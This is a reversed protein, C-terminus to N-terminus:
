DQKIQNLIWVKTVAIDKIGAGCYECVKDEGVIKVPAGCNPCKLGLARKGIGFADEDIVYIFYVKLRDQIKKRKGKKTEWYEFSSQMTIKAEITNREYMNIVTNHFKLNEYQVEQNKEIKDEIYKNIYENKSIHPNKEETGKFIERIASETEAKLKDISIGPFDKYARREFVSQVSFVTKPTESATLESQDIAEKLSTTGFYEKTFARIKTRIFIILSAIIALLIATIILILM